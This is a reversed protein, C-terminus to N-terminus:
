GFSTKRNEELVRKQKNGEYRERRGKKLDSYFARGKMRFFPSLMLEAEAADL